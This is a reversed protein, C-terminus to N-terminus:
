TNLTYTAAATKKFLKSFLPHIKKKGDKTSEFLKDLRAEFGDIHAEAFISDQHAPLGGKLAMAVMTKVVKTQSKTLRYVEGDFCISPENKGRIELKGYGFADGNANKEMYQFDCKSIFVHSLDISPQSTYIYYFEEVESEEDSFRILEGPPIFRQPGDDEFLGFERYKSFPILFAAGATNERKAYAAEIPPLYLEAWSSSNENFGYPLIMRLLFQDVIAWRDVDLEKAADCINIFDYKEM